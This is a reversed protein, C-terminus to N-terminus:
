IGEAFSVSVILHQVGDFPTPKSVTEAPFNNTVLAVKEQMAYPENASLGAKEFYRLDRYWASM